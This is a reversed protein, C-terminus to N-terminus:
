SGWRLRQKNGINTWGQQLLLCLASPSQAHLHCAHTLSPSLPWFGPFAFQLWLQFCHHEQSSLLHFSGSSPCWPHSSKHSTTSPLASLFLLPSLFGSMSLFSPALPHPAWPAQASLSSTVTTSRLWVAGLPPPVARPFAQSFSKLAMGTLYCHVEFGERIEGGIILGPGEWGLLWLGRPATREGHGQSSNSLRAQIIM